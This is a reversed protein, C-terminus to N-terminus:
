GNLAENRSHRNADRLEPFQEFVRLIDFFDAEAPNGDLRAVIARILELDDAYDVTIRLHDFPLNARLNSRSVGSADERMWLTVHERHPKEHAEANARALTAATFCEVDLGDAFSPPDINSAYDTGSCERLTVVRDIVSPDILPCDGTLRVIVDAATQEAGIRYRALVDDLPGTIVRIGHSEAFMVLPQDAPDTSTVLVAADLTQARRIRDFMFQIMPRGGLDALVKGPLRSSGMRAQVLAVTNTM